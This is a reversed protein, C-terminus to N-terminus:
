NADTGKRAADIAARFEQNMGSSDGPLSDWLDEILEIDMHNLQEILWDLRDRDERLEALESELAKIRELLGVGHRLSEEWTAIIRLREEDIARLNEVIRRFASRAAEGAGYLAEKVLEVDTM